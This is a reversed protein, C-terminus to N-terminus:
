GLFIVLTPEQPTAFHRHTLDAFSSNGLLYTSWSRVQYYKILLSHCTSLVSPHCSNREQEVNSVPCTNLELSRRWVDVSDGPTLTRRVPNKTAVSTLMNNLTPTHDMLFLVYMHWMTDCEWSSHPLSELHLSLTALPNFSYCCCCCWRTCIVPIVMGRLDCTIRWQWGTLHIFWDVLSDLTCGGLPAGEDMRGDMTDRRRSIKTGDDQIAKWFSSSM